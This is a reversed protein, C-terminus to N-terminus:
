EHKGVNRSPSELFFVRIDYNAGHTQVQWPVPMSLAYIQPSTKLQLTAPLLWYCMFYIIAALAKASQLCVIHIKCVTSLSPRLCRTNKITEQQSVAWVDTSFGIFTCWSEKETTTCRVVGYYSMQTRTHHKRYWNLCTFCLHVDHHVYYTLAMPSQTIVYMYSKHM